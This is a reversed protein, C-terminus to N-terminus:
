EDQHEGMSSEASAAPGAPAAGRLHIRYGRVALGLAFLLLVGLLLRREQLTLLTWTGGPHGADGGGRQFPWIRKM